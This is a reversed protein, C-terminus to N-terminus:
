KQHYRYGLCITRGKAYAKWFKQWEKYAAEVDDREDPHMAGVM